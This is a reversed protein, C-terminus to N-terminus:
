DEIKKSKGLRSFVSPLDGPPDEAAPAPGATGARSTATSRNVTTSLGTRDGPPYLLSWDPVAQSEMTGDMTREHENELM